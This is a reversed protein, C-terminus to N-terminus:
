TAAPERVYRRAAGASELIAVTGRAAMYRVHALTEGVALYTNLTDLERMFLRSALEAATQPTALLGDLVRLTQAHHTRLQATRRQLGRFPNGHAPLVLVDQPLTDLVDFSRLYSAVPDLDAREPYIGVNSTIRPLVQDASILLNDRACHLVLQADTHGGLIRVTWDRGGLRLTEGDAVHTVRQPLGSTVRGYRELRILARMEGDIALGEQAVCAVRGDAEVPDAWVREIRHMVEHEGASMLVDAGYRQELWHALGAHDPHHHTCVVRRLPRGDLLAHLPGEWAARTEPLNMGTDVLSWADGDDLLWVNIHRLPGPVFLRVWLLGPAIPVASGCEPVTELPYDLAYKAATM